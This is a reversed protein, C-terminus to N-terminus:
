LNAVSYSPFERFSVHVRIGAQLTMHKLLPTKFGTRLSGYCQVNEIDGENSVGM